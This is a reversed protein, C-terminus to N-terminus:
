ARAVTVACVSQAGGKILVRSCERLTEGTTCVDDVILLRLGKVAGAAFSGRVNAARRARPLESQTRTTRSRVLLTRDYRVGCLGALARGLLEAQNFGRAREKRRWMPVATISDFSFGERRALAELMLGALAEALFYQDRFKLAQLLRDLGGEYPGYSEVWAFAPPRLRCDGCITGGEARMDLAVGCIGCRGGLLTPLGDWCRRCCSGKRDLWPLGEGCLECPSPLVIRGAERGLSTLLELLSSMWSDYGGHSAVQMSVSVVSEYLSAWSAYREGGM